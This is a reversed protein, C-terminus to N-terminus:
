SSHSEESHFAGSFSDLTGCLCSWAKLKSFMTLSIFLRLISRMMLSFWSSRVRGSLDLNPREESAGFLRSSM